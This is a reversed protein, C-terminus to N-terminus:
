RHAIDWFLGSDLRKLSSRGSAIGLTSAECSVAPFPEFGPKESAWLAERHYPRFPLIAMSSFNILLSDGSFRPYPISERWLALAAPDDSLVKHRPVNPKQRKLSLAHNQYPNPRSLPLYPRGERYFRCSSSGTAPTPYVPPTGPGV